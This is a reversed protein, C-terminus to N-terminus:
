RSRQRCGERSACTACRPLSSRASLHPGLPVVFSLSKAPQLMGIRSASIAEPAAGALALVTSQMELGIGSDGPNEPGGAGLAHQRAERRIRAHLRDSLRFLMESALDDLAMALLPQRAQFLASIRAELSAGLPCAAAAVSTVAGTLRAIGPACLKAEGLDLVDGRIERVAHMRFVSVPAPIREHALLLRAQHRARMISPAQAQAPRARPPCRNEACRTALM